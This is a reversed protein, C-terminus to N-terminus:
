TQIIGGYKDDRGHRSTPPDDDPNQAKESKQKQSLGLQDELVAFFYAMKTKRKVKHDPDVATKTIRATGEQTLSRAQFVKAVFDEITLGSRKYIRWARTTSSKLPATDNFERARDAIYQQIVQYDEELTESREASPQNTTERRELVDGGAELAPLSSPQRSDASDERSGDSREKSQDKSFEFHDLDLEESDQEQNKKLHSRAKEYGHSSPNGHTHASPARGEAEEALFSELREFLPTFDYFNTAKGGSETQRNVVILLDLDVLQRQYNHLQRRSVGTQEAMRRLSPYPMNADWKHSLIASIFWAQQPKLGLPAQFRFLAAPIAAIGGRLITAGYRALFSNQGRISSVEKSM